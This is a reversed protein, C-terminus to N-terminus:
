IKEAARLKASRANPNLKIEEQSPRIPKKTLIKIIQLKQKEKFFNKVIRDELSHFSIVVIRGKKELIEIAQPLVKELNELEQNVAIRLAQFTKTAFHRGRLSGFPRTRAIRKRKYWSPVAKKVIEVLEFSTKIPVRKRESIIQNAIKRSFREQGYEALIQEIEKEKWFNVIERATLVNGGEVKSGRSELNYRMDLPEDKKFTFGRGSKELHWKSMGLDLLIGSVPGFKNEKVIKKLNKFNNCVLILNKLNKKELSEIIEKDQDIGLVKGKPETAKLIELAHGGGDITCDIFNKNKKPILYELVQKKLVPVHYQRM